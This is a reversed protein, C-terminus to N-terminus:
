RAVPNHLQSSQCLVSKNDKYFQHEITDLFIPFSAHVTQTYYNFLAQAIEPLPLEYLDVVVDIELDESDLYFSSESVHSIHPISGLQSSM